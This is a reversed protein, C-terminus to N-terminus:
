GTERCVIVRKVTLINTNPARFVIVDSHKPNGWQIPMRNSFPLRLGYALKDVVIRDGPIITPVMSRSPVHNWDVILMRVAILIALFIILGRWERWVATM